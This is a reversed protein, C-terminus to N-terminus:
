VRLQVFSAIRKFIHDIALDLDSLDSNCINIVIIHVPNHIVLLAIM